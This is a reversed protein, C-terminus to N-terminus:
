LTFPLIKLLVSGVALPDVKGLDIANDIQPVAHTELYKWDLKIEKLHNSNAIEMRNERLIIRYEYSWLPFGIKHKQMIFYMNQDINIWWILGGLTTIPKRFAM